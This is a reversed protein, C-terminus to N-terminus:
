SKQFFFSRYIKLGGGTPYIAEHGTYLYEGSKPFFTSM